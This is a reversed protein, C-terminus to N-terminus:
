EINKCSDLREIRYVTTVRVVRWYKGYRGIASLDGSFRVRWAGQVRRVLDETTMTTSQDLESNSVLLYPTGSVPCSIAKPYFEERPLLRILVGDFTQAKKGLAFKLFIALALVFIGCIPIIRSASM